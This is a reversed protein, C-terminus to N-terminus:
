PIVHAAKEAGDPVYLCSGHGREPQLMLMLRIRQLFMPITKGDKANM